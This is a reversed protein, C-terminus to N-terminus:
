CLECRPFYMKIIKETDNRHQRVPITTFTHWVPCAYELVPRVVSLYGTVLDSQSIGARKLQYM